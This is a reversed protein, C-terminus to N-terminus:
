NASIVGRRNKEEEQIATLMKADPDRWRAGAARAM